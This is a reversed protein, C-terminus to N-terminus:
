EYDRPPTKPAMTYLYEIIYQANVVEEKNWYHFPAPWGGDIPTVLINEDLIDKIKLVVVIDVGYGGMDYAIIDGEYM